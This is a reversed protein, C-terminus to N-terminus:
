PKQLGAWRRIFKETSETLQCFDTLLIMFGISIAVAVKGNGIDLLQKLFVVADRDQQLFVQM